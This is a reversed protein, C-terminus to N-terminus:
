VQKLKIFNRYYKALNISYDIYIRSVKLVKINKFYSM